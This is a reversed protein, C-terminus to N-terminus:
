AWSKAADSLPSREDKIKATKTGPPKETLSERDEDLGKLMWDQAPNMRARLEDKKAQNLRAKRAIQKNKSQQAKHFTEFNGAIIPIPLSLVLVGSVACLTGVLKGLGTQPYIDGYGVTTMTVVVWYFGTLIDTFGSDADLEIFYCLASFILGSIAMLFVLLLLEKYSNKLTYAIAQLGPSHRGLKFIRALKFIRFVQLIDDVGGGEEEEEVPTGVTTTFSSASEGPIPPAMFLGVFYPMIALVDVVNMGDKLFEIKEPAGALRLFYELTFWSCCMSEILDLYPNDVLGGDLDEYKLGDLTSLVMGVTSVLVFTVSVASVVQALNSTEPKEIVDWLWKQHQAFYGDGFDEAVEQKCKASLIEMEELVSEKYSVYKERCCAELFSEEIMWYELDDRFSLICMEDATHLKGTRYFNLITNFSRPHRDFFYENDVLSYEVCVLMIQEHNKAQSLLGLRTQPLQELMTWLVEHRIGGVNLTVRKNLLRSKQIIFPDPRQQDVTPLTASWTYSMDETMPSMVPSMIHMNQNMKKDKEIETVKEDVKVIGSQLSAMERAFPRLLPLLKLIENHKTDADLSQFQHLSMINRFMDGPKSDTPSTKATNTDLSMLTESSALPPDRRLRTNNVVM